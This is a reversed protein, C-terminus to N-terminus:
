VLRSYEGVTCKVKLVTVPIVESCSDSLHWRLTVGCLTASFPECLLFGSGEYNLFAIKRLPCCGQVKCASGSVTHACFSFRLIQEQFVLNFHEWFKFRVLHTCLKLPRLKKCLDLVMYWARGQSVLITGSIHAIPRNNANEKANDRECSRAVPKQWLIPSGQVRAQKKFRYCLLLLACISYFVM